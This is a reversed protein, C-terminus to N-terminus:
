AGVIRDLYYYVSIGVGLVWLRVLVEAFYPIKDWQRDTWARDPNRADGHYFLKHGHILNYLPDFFTFHIALAYLTGQFWYGPLLFGVIISLALVYAANLKHRVKGKRDVILHVLLPTILPIYQLPINM